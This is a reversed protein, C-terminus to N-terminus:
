IKYANWCKSKDKRISVLIAYIKLFVLSGSLKTGTQKEPKIKM